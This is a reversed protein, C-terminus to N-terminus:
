QLQQFENSGELLKKLSRANHIAGLLATNNFYIFANRINKLSLLKAAFQEIISLSYESFYLDPIGHFRYYLDRGSNILPDPLTPHSIGSFVVGAETLRQMVLDNWWAPDRFELTNTFTTDLSSLIKGLNEESYKFSPPLQFLLTGLKDGLGERVVNYFDKLLSECSSFQKFHTILRPAKVSFCFGPPSKEYWARLTKYQPFRYFTVNLEITNFEGSYYAFWNKQALGEPYFEGKWAKNYFGSCGIFYKM